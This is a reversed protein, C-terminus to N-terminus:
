SEGQICEHTDVGNMAFVQMIKGVAQDKTQRPHGLLPESGQFEGHHGYRFYVYGPHIVIVGHSGKPNRAYSAM